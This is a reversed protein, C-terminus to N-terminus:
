EADGLYRAILFVLVITIIKLANDGLFVFGANKAIRKVTSM